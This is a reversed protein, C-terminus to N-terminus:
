FCDAIERGDLRDSATCIDAEYKKPNSRRPNDMFSTVSTSFVNRQSM